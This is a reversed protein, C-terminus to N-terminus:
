RTQGYSAYIIHGKENLHQQYPSPGQGEKGEKDADVASLEKLVAKAELNGQLMGSMLWEFEEGEYLSPDIKPFLRARGELVLQYIEQMSTSEVKTDPTQAPKNM